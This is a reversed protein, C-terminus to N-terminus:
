PGLRAAATELTLWERDIRRLFAELRALKRSAPIRLDPRRSALAPSADSADLFDLGHLEVNALPTAATGALLLSAAAAPLGALFTGVLPVRLAGATVPLEVLPLGGRAYPERESPRYPVRPALMARPRDLIAASRRGALALLAMAGAKAIWYPPAPLASSDYLYGQSALEAVLAASLAYGPARFGVPPRGAAAEVAAAGSRLERAIGDRDRRSLGYDHSFSHNAVEHGARALRRVAAAAAPAALPEGVAFVTGRIGLRECLEGYRETARGYVPDDGAEPPAIGHLRHYCGLPDLDISLSAATM